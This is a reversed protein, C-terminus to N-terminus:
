QAQPPAAPLRADPARLYDPELCEMAPGALAPLQNQRLGAIALNGLAAADAGRCGPPAVLALDGLGQLLESCVDVGPGTYVTESNGRRSILDEPRLACREDLERPVDESTDYTAAYVEGKRADVLACVPARSLPVRAAMAQLTPVPILPTRGPLCLGKAASLGIRLGTFSGPGISVAVHTINDMTLRALDLAHEIEAFLLESHRMGVDIAMGVVVGQPAVIALSCVPTATEIALILPARRGADQTM